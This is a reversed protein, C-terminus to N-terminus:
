SRALWCALSRGASCAREGGTCLDMVLHVAADDEFAAKLTVINKCGNLHRMIAVERRVDENHMPTRHSCRVSGTTVCCFRQVALHGVEHKETAPATLLSFGSGCKLKAKAISKCAFAKGTSKETAVYTTGFQGRGLEKGLVFLDLLTQAARPPFLRRRDHCPLGVLPLYFPACRPRPFSCLLTGQREPRRRHTRPRAPAGARVEPDALEGLVPKSLSLKSLGPLRQAGSKKKASASAPSDDQAPGLAAPSLIFRFGATLSPM